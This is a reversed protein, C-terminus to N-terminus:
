ANINKEFNLLDLIDEDTFKTTVAPMVGNCQVSMIMVKLQINKLKLNKKKGFNMKSTYNMYEFHIDYM